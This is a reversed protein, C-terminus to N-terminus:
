INHYKNKQHFCWFLCGVLSGFIVIFYFYGGCLWCPHFFIFVSCNMFSYTILACCLGTTNADSEQATVRLDIGTLSDCHKKENLTNGM